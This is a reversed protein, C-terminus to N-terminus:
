APDPFRFEPIQAYGLAEMGSRLPFSLEGPYVLFVRELGLDAQAITMSHTVSPKETVKFEFGYRKGGREVILDMEAGGHTGWFFVEDHEM